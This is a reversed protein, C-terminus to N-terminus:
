VPHGVGNGRTNIAILQEFANARATHRAHEAGFVQVKVADHRDFDQVVVEGVVRGELFAKLALGPEDGAEVM